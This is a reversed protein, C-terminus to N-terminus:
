FEKTIEHGMSDPLLIFFIKNKEILFRPCVKTEKELRWDKTGVIDDSKIVNEM